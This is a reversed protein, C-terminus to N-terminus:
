ARRKAKERVLSVVKDSRIHEAIARFASPEINQFRLSLSHNDKCIRRVSLVSAQGNITKVGTPTNLFLECDFVQYRGNEQRVFEIFSSSIVCEFGVPNILADEVRLFETGSVSLVIAAM